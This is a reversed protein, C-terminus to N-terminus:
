YRVTRSDPLPAQRHWADYQWYNGRADIGTERRLEAEVSPFLSSKGKLSAEIFARFLPHPETPRSKFEPHFQCGLFWPHNEIEIIEVLENDPSAGSIKMRTQGSHGQLRQQVRLPTQPTRLDRKQRYAAHALTNEEIVCPYAGLRMTGGKQTSETREEIKGKRFDYWKEMLYIVPAQANLDFESSNAKLGCVNRAFEIVACQM